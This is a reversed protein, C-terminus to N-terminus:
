QVLQRKKQNRLLNRTSHDGDLLELFGFRGLGAVFCGHIEGLDVKRGANAQTARGRPILNKKM